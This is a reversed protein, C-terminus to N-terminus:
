IYIKLKFIYKSKKELAWSLSLFIMSFHKAFWVYYIGFNPHKEETFANSVTSINLIRLCGIWIWEIISVVNWIICFQEKAHFLKLAAHYVSSVKSHEYM